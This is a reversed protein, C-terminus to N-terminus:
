VHGRPTGLHERHPAPSTSEADGSRYIWVAPRGNDGSSYLAYSLGGSREKLIVTRWNTVVSPRIWAELTMGSTLDLLATDAITVWDNVGDFSLAAGNKGAANWTAGSVTGTHGNGTADATATGTGENFNYAAVLGTQADVPRAAVLCACVALAITLVRCRRM